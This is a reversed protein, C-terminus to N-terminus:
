AAQTHKTKNEVTNKLRGNAEYNALRRPGHFLALDGNAYRHIHVKTKAYHCHYPTKPIQLIM